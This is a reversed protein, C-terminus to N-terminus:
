GAGHAEANRVVRKRPLFFDVREHDEAKGHMVHVAQLDEEGIETGAEVMAERVMAPVVKIRESPRMSHSYLFASKFAREDVPPKAIPFGKLFYEVRFEDERIGAVHVLAVEQERDQRRSRLLCVRRLFM